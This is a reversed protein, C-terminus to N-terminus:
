SHDEQWKLIKQYQDISILGFTWLVIPIPAQEIDSQRLGLSIASDSLGIKQKLFILLKNEIRNSGNTTYIM